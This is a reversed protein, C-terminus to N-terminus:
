KAGPAGDCGKRRRSPMPHEQKELAELEESTDLEALAVQQESAELENRARVADVQWM